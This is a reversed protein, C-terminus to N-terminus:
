SPGLVGKDLRMSICNGPPTVVVESMFARMLALGRGSAITLNEDATPDPVTDPEFGPGQDTVVLHIADASIKCELDIPLSTDGGHGHRLANTLAEELALRVAFAAAEDWQTKLLHEHVAQVISRM